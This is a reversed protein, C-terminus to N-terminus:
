KPGIKNGKPYTQNPHFCPSHFFPHFIINKRIQNMLSILSVSFPFSFLRKPGVNKQEGLKPPFSLLFSPLHYLKCLYGLKLASVQGERKGVVGTVQNVKQRKMRIVKKAGECCLLTFQELNEEKKRKKQRTRM